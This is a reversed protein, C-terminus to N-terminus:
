EQVVEVDTAMVTYLFGNSLVYYDVVQRESNYGQVKAKTLLGYTLPFKGKPLYPGYERLLRIKVEPTPYGTYTEQANV